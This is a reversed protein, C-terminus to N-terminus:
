QAAPELVEIQMGALMPAIAMLDNTMDQASMSSVGFTIHAADYAAAPGLTPDLDVWAGDLWAQTWMHGGFTNRADLFHDVYLLGTATRAPIDAARLLAALLVAHESCDGQATRAVESASGLGVSLDKATIFEHVFQRLREATEGAPRADAAEGGLAEALLKLVAPDAHDIMPSAARDDDTPAEDDGAAARDDLDITVVYTGAEVREVRQRGVSPLVPAHREVPPADFRVRYSGHRLQRPNAIPRDPQVFLSALLQPPDVEALALDRDAALMTIEMGPMLAVTTRLAEGRDDLYERSTVGPLISVGVEWLTAPVVRGFVEVERPGIRDMTIEFPRPGAQLELTRVSVREEGGEIAETVVRQAAAPPLWDDDPDLAVARTSSRGGQEHTLEAGGPTFRLTQMSQSTGMLTRATAEIPEGAASEVFSSDQEIRMEVPGRRITIVTRSETIIREAEDRRQVLHAHGARDGGILLVYWREFNPAQAGAPAALALLAAVVLPLRLTTM